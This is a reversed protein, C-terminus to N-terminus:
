AGGDEQHDNPVASAQHQVFFAQGARGEHPVHQKKVLEDGGELGQGVRKVGNLAAIRRRFANKLHQIPGVFERVRSSRCISWVRHFGM